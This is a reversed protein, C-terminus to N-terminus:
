GKKKGKDKVEDEGLGFEKDRASSQAGPAPKPPAVKALKVGYDAYIAEVTDDDELEVVKNGVVKAAPGPLGPIDTGAAFRIGAINGWPIFLPEFHPTAVIAPSNAVGKVPFVGVSVYVGPDKSHLYIDIVENSNVQLNTADEKLVLKGRVKGIIGDKVEEKAM